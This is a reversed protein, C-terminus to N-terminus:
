KCPMDGDGRDLLDSYLGFKDINNNTDRVYGYHTLNGGADVQTYNGQEPDYYRFRNYYLGM